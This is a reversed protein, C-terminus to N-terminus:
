TQQNKGVASYIKFAGSTYSSKLVRLNKPIRHLADRSLSFESFEVTRILGSQVSPTQTPLRHQIWTKTIQKTIVVQLNRMEECIFPHSSSSANSHRTRFWSLTKSALTGLVLNRWICDESVHITNSISYSTKLRTGPKQQIIKVCSKYKLFIIACITMLIVCDKWIGIISWPVVFYTLSPSFLYGWDWPKQLNLYFITASKFLAIEM